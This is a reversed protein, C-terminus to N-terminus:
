TRARYQRMKNRSGCLAMTCWRSRGAPSRDYYVWRCTDAACAKLRRWTGDVVSAAIDAAMRAVLADLGGLDAAPQVVASGDAGLALRLPARALRRELVAGSAAPVDVGAHAQCVDRLAERFELVEALDDASFTLRLGHEAAFSALDAPSRLQDNEMELDVTNALDQVLVLPEPAPTRAGPQIM